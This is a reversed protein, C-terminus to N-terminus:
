AREVWHVGVIDDSEIEFFVRLTPEGGFGAIRAVRLRTGEVAPFDEADQWAAWEFVSMRDDLRKLDGLELLQLLVREDYAIERQM